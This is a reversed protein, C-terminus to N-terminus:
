NWYIVYYCTSVSSLNEYSVQVLKIALRAEMRMFSHEVGHEERLREASIDGSTLM